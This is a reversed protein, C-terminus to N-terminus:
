CADENFNNKDSILLIQTKEAFRKFIRMDSKMFIGGATASNKWAFPCLCVHCLLNDSNAYKYVHRFVAYIASLLGSALSSPHSYKDSWWEVRM